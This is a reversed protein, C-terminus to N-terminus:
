KIVEKARQILSEAKKNTKAEAYIRIIPETNSKRFHIWSNEWTFKIGDESNIIGDNFQNKLKKVLLPFQKNEIGIKDKIITYQPLNSHIQSLPQESQAMRNLVLTVGTLSDRGLHSEKLIIGGNGEGGFQAGIKLMKQVVNVEGVPSYVVKMGYSESMKELALSTSLNVVFRDGIKEKSKLFGEAAIVLTYEEGLPKGMESVIALRDADPDTAFGVDAQNELVSKSLIQLNEPLPETGRPFPKNEDCHLPIVECGLSELMGPLATSGAGNCADIVVKFKRNRISNLDICSLCTQHIIHKQVANHDPLIMGKTVRSKQPDNHATKFLTECENQHLFVGDHRIFKLGNWEAPNHSATIVMGGVAETQEVMFQITPTPVIGCFFVDRGCHSLEEVVVDQLEDGTARSDRGVFIVGTPQQQHFANTYKRVKESSFSSATLGRVGSISEIIM